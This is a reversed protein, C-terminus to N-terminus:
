LSTKVESPATAQGRGFFWYCTDHLRVKVYQVIWVMPLSNNKVFNLEASLKCFYLFVFNLEESLKSPNNCKWKTDFFQLNYNEPWHSFLGHKYSFASWFCVM